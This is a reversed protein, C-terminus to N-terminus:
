EEYANVGLNSYYNEDHTSLKLLHKFTGWFGRDKIMAENNKSVIM